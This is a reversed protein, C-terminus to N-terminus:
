VRVRFGEHDQTGGEPEPSRLCLARAKSGAARAVESLNALM